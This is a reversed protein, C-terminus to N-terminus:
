SGGGTPDPTVEGPEPARRLAGKGLRLLERTAPRVLLLAFAIYVVVGTVLQAVLSAIAPVLGDLGYAVGTVAAYMPICALLPRFAGVLYIGVPLGTAWGTAVITAVAHLGYGICAGICAWEPGGALGLGAVLSLVLAARAFSMIMILRTQQVAQLYATASWTMPRFVTMVSLIVLMPTMAHWRPDFLTEVLTPAIAALGVGLPSVVLGMLASASVVARRRQADEMKSFSPMLVEGIHEAIHSVPMEALSFSLNYRGMVGPGFLKAVILSDWRTAARDAVAGIMIPLGYGFLGRVTDSRMPSYVLWSTRPTAAFFLVSTVVAKVQVAIVIAYVGWRPALALALGAFVVEGSANIMAITRFRLDRMLLREPVYRARDILHAVAYWLVFEGMAETDLLDGIPDRFVVLVAMAVLGLGVHLVAAQFAVDPPSRRAILYQGFAFSSLGGVTTVSISAALVAGYADPAIFRTLIVTSALTLLRSSIGFIM